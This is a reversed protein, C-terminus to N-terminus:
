IGQIGVGGVRKIQPFKVSLDELDEYYANISYISFVAMSGSIIKVIMSIKVKILAYRLAYWAYRM